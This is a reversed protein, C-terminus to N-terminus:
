MKRLKERVKLESDYIKKVGDGLAKELTRIDKVLKRLGQPEVSAAQDTGWMSRDLTIHREVMEAGLTIAAITTSLGVEHGSYGIKCGYREKLVPIMRLNLEEPKAPYSSTCHMLTIDTGTIAVAHDIEELTSMGTSLMIPIDISCVFKLLDDNTLCASPIKIYPPKYKRMFEVAPIDWCSAFWKINGKCYFHIHDYDITRFELKKKYDIYPITGWPTEKPIDQQSEPVCLIPTRKQFKVYDCGADIAAEILDYATGVDGNHNIGVEAIIEVM